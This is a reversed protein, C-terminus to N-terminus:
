ALMVAPVLKVSEHPLSKVSVAETVSAPLSVMPIPQEPLRV